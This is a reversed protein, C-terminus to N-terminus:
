GYIEQLSLKEGFILFEDKLQTYDKLDWHQLGRREYVTVAKEYQDIYIIQEVSPIKKYARLKDGFDYAATSKSTIEVILTPNTIRANSKKGSKLEVFDPEGRVVSVDANFDEPNLVHPIHIKINSGLVTYNKLRKCIIKLCFIVEAVLQENYYSANGMLIIDHNLYEVNVPCKDVWKLYENFSAPIRIPMQGLSELDSMTKPMKITGQVM